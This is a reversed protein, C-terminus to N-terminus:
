EEGFIQTGYYNGGSQYVGVGIVKYNGLMNIRHGLSTAWMNTLGAAIQDPSGGGFGSYAVNEAYMGATSGFEQAYQANRQSPFGGHGISGRDGQEKSWLRSVFSMKASHVLPPRGNQARLENTKATIAVEIQCIVPDGKYCEADQDPTDALSDASRVDDQDDQDDRDDEDGLDRDDDEDDRDREDDDDRSRKEDDEDIIPKKTTGRQSSSSKHACAVTNMLGVCLLGLGLIRLKM